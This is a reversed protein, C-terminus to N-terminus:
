KVFGAPFEDWTRGDLERIANKGHDGNLQKIFFSVDAEVSQDRVQRVWDLKLPRAGEGGTESGVLVWNLDGLYARLDVPGLMPELVAIRTTNINLLHPLREDALAQNEISVACALYGPTGNPFHACLIGAMREPRKTWLVYKPAQRKTTATEEIIDLIRHISDDSVQDWFLDGHQCIGVIGNKPRLYDVTMRNEFAFVQNPDVESPVKGLRQLWPLLADLYWCKRCGPSCKECGIIPNWDCTLIDGPNKKAM